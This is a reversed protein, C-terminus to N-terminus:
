NISSRYIDNVRRKFKSVAKAIVSYSIGTNEEIARYSGLALYERFVEKVFRDRKDKPPEKLIKNMISEKSEIEKSESSEWVNILVDKDIKKPRHKKNFKSRDLAWTRWCIKKFYGAPNEHKCPNEIYIILCEMFLDDGFSGAIKKCYNIFQKDNFIQEPTL